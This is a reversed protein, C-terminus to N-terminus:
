TTSGKAHPSRCDRCAIRARGDRRRRRVGVSQAGAHRAARPEAPLAPLARQLDRVAPRHGDLRDSVALLEADAVPASVLEVGHRTDRAPLSRTPRREITRRSIRTCLCGAVLSTSFLGPRRAIGALKRSLLSQLRSRVSRGGVFLQRYSRRARCQGRQRARGDGAREMSGARETAVRDRFQGSVSTSGRALDHEPLAHEVSAAFACPAHARAAVSTEARFHRAAPGVTDIVADLADLWERTEQPDTDDERLRWAANPILKSLDDFNM